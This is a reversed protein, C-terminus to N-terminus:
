QKNMFLWGGDQPTTFVRLKGDGVDGVFMFNNYSNGENILNGIKITIFAGYSIVFVKYYVKDNPDKEEFISVPIVKGSFIKSKKLKKATEEDNLVPKNNVGAYSLQAVTSYDKTELATIFDNVTHYIENERPHVIKIISINGTSSGQFGLVDGGYIAYLGSVLPKSSKFQFMGQKDLPKIKLPVSGIPAYSISKDTNVILYLYSLRVTNTSVSQDYYILTPTITNVEQINKPLNSFTPIIKDGMQINALRIDFTPLEILSDNQVIYRGFYEPQKQSFVNVSLM